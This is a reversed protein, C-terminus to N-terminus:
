LLRTLVSLFGCTGGSRKAGTPIVFKKCTFAELATPHISLGLSLATTDWMERFVLSIGQNGTRTVLFCGRTRSGNLFAAHPEDVGVLKM